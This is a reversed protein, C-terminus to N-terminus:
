LTRKANPHNATQKTREINTKNIMSRAFLKDTSNFVSSFNDDSVLNSICVFLKYKHKSFTDMNNKLNTSSVKMADFIMDLSYTIKKSHSLNQPASKIGYEYATNLIKKLNSYGEFPVKNNESFNIYSVMYEIFIRDELTKEVNNLSKNRMKKFNSNLTSTKKFNDSIFNQFIKKQDIINYLSISEAKSTNLNRITVGVGSTLVNAVDSRSSIVGNTISFYSAVTRKGYYQGFTGGPVKEVTFIIKKADNLVTLYDINDKEFFLKLNLDLVAREYFLINFTNNRYNDKIYKIAKDVESSAGTVSKFIGKLYMEVVNVFGEFDGTATLYNKITASTLFSGKGTNWKKIDVNNDKCCQEFWTKDEYGQMMPANNAKMEVLKGKYSIDGKDRPKDGGMMIFVLEGPGANGRTNISPIGETQKMIDMFMNNKAFVKNSSKLEEYSVVDDTSKIIKNMIKELSKDKVKKLYDNWDEPKVQNNKAHDLLIGVVKGVNGVKPELYEKLDKEISIMALMDYMESIQKSNKRVNLGNIYNVLFEKKDSVNM